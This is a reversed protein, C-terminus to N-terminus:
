FVGLKKKKKGLKAAQQHETIEDPTAARISVQGNGAMAQNVVAIAFAYKKDSKITGARVVDAKGGAADGLMLKTLGRNYLSGHDTPDAAFAQDFQKAAEAYEGGLALAKASKAQEGRGGALQLEYVNVHPSIMTHFDDVCQGTLARVVQDMSVSEDSGFLGKNTSESGSDYNHSAAKSVIVESTAPRCMQFNMSVTCTRRVTRVTKTKPSNGSLLGVPNLETKTGREESQMVNVTGFIVADANLVKGAKAASAPDSIGAEGLDVEM